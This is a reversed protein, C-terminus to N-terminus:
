PVKGNKGALLLMTKRERPMDNFDTIKERIEIQEDQIANIIGAHTGVLDGIRVRYLKGDQTLILGWKDKGLTITGVMKLTDLEYSALANDTGVANTNDGSGNAMFPDRTHKLDTTFKGSAKIVPLPMPTKVQQLRFGDLQRQLDTLEKQECGSLALPVIAIRALRNM